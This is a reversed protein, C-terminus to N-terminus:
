KYVYYPDVVKSAGGITHQDASEYTNKNQKSNYSCTHTKKM